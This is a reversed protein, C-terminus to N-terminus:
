GGFLMKYISYSYNDPVQSAKFPVDYNFLEKLKEDLKQIFVAKAATLAEGTLKGEKNNFLVGEKKMNRVVYLRVEVEKLQQRQEFVYTYFLTQLLAKNLKNDDTNFCNEISSYALKDGGTKYDVIRYVGDKTEVRDVIGYFKVQQVEGKANTFSYNISGKDELGILTFPAEKIDEELIIHAYENVIAVIVKQMGSYALQKTDDAYLQRVFATYILRELDKRKATIREATILPNEAKLEEYFHELVDHLILGLKDAEVAEEVVKPEEIKALYKYFFDVPNSIYTTLATASLIREGTLFKNLEAQIKPTKPIEILEQLETQVPLQLQKFNFSFGSEYALQKIFRSAEGSNNEDTATNYILDINEARQLLRYFMYASVADQNDLVPLGYAKRLSEPIFSPSSSGKPVMGENVGLMIVHKFNLNRSELLGMLQLGKTSEGALPVAINQLSKFILSSVFSVDLQDNNYKELHAHLNDHLRNLAAIASMFLDAEIKKLRKAGLERKLVLEFVAMLDNILSELKATKTFFLEMLGKYKLLKEQPVAVLQQEVLGDYITAKLKESIGSLPHSIFTEVTRYNVVKEQGTPASMLQIQTDLWIEALGLLTSAALPVGMTVNLEKDESITQLVPILLNENALVIATSSMEETALLPYGDKLLDNLIKAQAVEGEIKYVNVTRPQAKIFSRDNSLQNVLGLQKLNQRIFFGAEQLDDELYYTDTDFYFLAKGEDQWRKFIKEEAKGLANFGVFILKGNNYPALFDPQNHNEEALSRYLRANTTLNNEALKQYFRHYLLPMRGWMEIFKQQMQKQKGENYSRWFQSLFQKQEDTLFDFQENIVAIDELSKFLAEANVLDMDIQAFDGLIINAIGQFQAISPLRNKDDNKLLEIYSDYLTFLQTHADAIGFHTSQGFFEQITFFSPSWFPKQYSKALYKKLYDAPRKNNSVVACYQLDEGFKAILDEAVEQLFPKM